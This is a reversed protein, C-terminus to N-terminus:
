LPPAAAAADRALVAGDLRLVAGPASATARVIIQAFAADAPSESPGVSVTAFAEGAAAPAGSLTGVSAGDAARFALQVAVGSVRADAAVRLQLTHAARPVTPVRWWESSVSIPGAAAAVARGM